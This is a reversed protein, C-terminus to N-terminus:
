VKELLQRNNFFIDVFIQGLGVVPYDPLSAGGRKKCAGRKKCIHLFLPPAVYSALSLRVVYRSAATIMHYMIVIVVTNTM